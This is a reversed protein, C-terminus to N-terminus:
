CLETGPWQLVTENGGSMPSAPSKSPGSCLGLRRGAVDPAVEAETEALDGRFAKALIANSIREGRVAAATLLDEITDARALLAEVRRV